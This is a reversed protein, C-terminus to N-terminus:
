SQSWDVEDGASKGCFIPPAPFARPVLNPKLKDKVQYKVIPTLLGGLIDLAKQRMNRSSYPKRRKQKMQEM